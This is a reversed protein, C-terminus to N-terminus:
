TVLPFGPESGIIMSTLAVRLKGGSITLTLILTANPFFLTGMSYVIGSIRNSRLFFSYVILSLSRAAKALYKTRAILSTFLPKSASVGMAKEVGALRARVGRIARTPNTELSNGTCLVRGITM